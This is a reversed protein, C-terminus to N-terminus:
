TGSDPSLESWEPIMGGKPDILTLVGGAEVGYLEKGQLTQAVCFMREVSHALTGDVQASEQQFRGPKLMELNTIQQLSDLSSWFMTGAFFGYDEELDGEIKKDLQMESIMSAISVLNANYNVAMSTFQKAPGVIGTSKKECLKIISELAEKSPPILEDLIQDFWENGDERHPSKKTHVKLITKHGGDHVLKKMIGLFPLVDRGRNPLLVSTHRIKPKHQEFDAAKEEPITIYLDYCGELPKLHKLIKDILEPYFAHVVVALSSTTSVSLNNLAEQTAEEDKLANSASQSKKFVRSALV